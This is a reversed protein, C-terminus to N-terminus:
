QSGKRKALAALRSGVAMLMGFVTSVIALLMLPVLVVLLRLKRVRPRTRPPDEFLPTLNDSANADSMRRPLAATRGRVLPSTTPPERRPVVSANPRIVFD